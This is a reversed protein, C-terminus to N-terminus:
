SLVEERAADWARRVRCPAICLDRPCKCKSCPDQYLYAQVQHPMAYHEGGLPVGEPQAPLLEKKRRPYSRFLEWRALFWNRWAQCNKNECSAPDAVRSCSLCPSKKRCEM